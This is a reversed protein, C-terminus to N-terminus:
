SIKEQGTVAERKFGINEANKKLYGSGTRSEVVWWLHHYRNFDKIINRRISQHITISTEAFRLSQKELILFGLVWSERATLMAYYGLASWFKDEVYENTFQESM